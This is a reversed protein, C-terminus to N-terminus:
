PSEALRLDYAFRGAAAGLSYGFGSWALRSGVLEWGRYLRAGQAQALSFSVGAAASCLSAEAATVRVWTGIEAGRLCAGGSDRYRDFHRAGLENMVVVETVGAPLEGVDVAIHVLAETDVRYVVKVLACTAVQEFTTQWGFRRRMANSSATLLGRLPPCRRHVAALVDRLVYFSRSAPGGSGGTLREVLNMEFTATASWPAEGDLRLDMGGPFITQAGRKLIPVGFGVGEEILDDGDHRLLLGRQLRAVPYAGTRAQGAGSGDGGPPQDAICLSLDGFM